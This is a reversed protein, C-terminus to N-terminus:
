CQYLPTSLPIPIKTGLAQMIVVTLTIITDPSAMRLASYLPFMQATPAGFGSTLALLAGESEAPPEEVVSGRSKDKPVENKDGWVRSM